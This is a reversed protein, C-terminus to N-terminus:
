NLWGLVWALALPSSPENSGRGLVGGFLRYIFLSKLHGSQSPTQPRSHGPTPATPNLPPM